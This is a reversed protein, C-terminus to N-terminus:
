LQLIYSAIKGKITNSLSDKLVKLEEAQVSMEELKKVLEKAAAEINMDLESLKDDLLRNGVVDMVVSHGM